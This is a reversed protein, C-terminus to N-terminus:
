NTLTCLCTHTVSGHAKARYKAKLLKSYQKELENKSISM